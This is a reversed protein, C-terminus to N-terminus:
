GSKAASDGAVRLLVTAWTRFPRWPEAMVRFAEPDPPADLGYFLAASARARPEHVPLVDTVGTARVVILEAYFPGIGRLERMESTAKAPGAARLGDADLKGELAAGALGHLRRLREEPLGPMPDMELIREPTPWAYVYEGELEFTAGHEECLRKHMERAQATTRRASIISWAAGEYPSYFLVPRLGPHTHQLRGIVDDRKGVELWADGDQDLSLVRAVQNRVAEIHAKGTVAGHVGRNDQRLMVGAHDKYGDVCFAMRMSPAGATTEGKRPGFGFSAAAELLFEGTPVITFTCGDERVEGTSIVDLKGGPAHAM